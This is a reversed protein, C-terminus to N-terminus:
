KQLMIKYAALMFVYLTVGFDKSLNRIPACLELPLNQEHYSGEFSNVPPRPFDYPLELIPLKGGLKTTWYNLHKEDQKQQRQWYAFDAFQYPLASLHVPTGQSLQNYCDVLEQRLVNMSWKDTIIHHMTLLLVHVTESLQFLQIRFLPDKQLDFPQKAAAVSAAELQANRENEAVQSLDIQEIRIDVNPQVIQIPRGDQLQFNTRLIEYRNVLYDFAQQLANRQLQGKLWYTEAYHYFPNDPYLQQMFWLREQGFSLPIQINEPRKQIGKPRNALNKKRSRWKELISKEKM